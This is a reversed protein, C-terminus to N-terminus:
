PMVRALSQPENVNRVFARHAFLLGICFLLCLVASGSFLTFIAPAGGAAFAMGGFFPGLFSGVFALSNALGLITGRSAPRVASTAVANLINQTSASGTGILVVCALALGLSLPGYLIGLLGGLTLVTCVITVKSPGFKDAAGAALLSGVVAAGTLSFAFLLAQTLDFGLAIMSQALWVNLGLWIVMNTVSTLAVFTVLLYGRGAFLGTFKQLPSESTDKVEDPEDLRCGCLVVLIAVTTIAGLAFMSRWGWLPMLFMGFLAAATGGLPVGAMTITIILSARGAPAHNRALTMATTVAGGVGLGTVLRAIGLMEPSTSLGALASGVAITGVAAAMIRPRGFRDSLATGGLVGILAGLYVIGGILGVAQADLSLSQDQLLLPVISGYVILNYGETVTVLTCLAIVAKNSLFPRTVQPRTGSRDKIKM